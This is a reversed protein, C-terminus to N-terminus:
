ETKASSGLLNEVEGSIMIKQNTKEEFDAIAENLAIALSKATIHSANLIAEAKGNRRALIFIDNKSIGIAFENFYISTIDDSKLVESFDDKQNHNEKSM